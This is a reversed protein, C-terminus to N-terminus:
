SESKLFSAKIKATSDIINELQDKTMKDEPISAMTNQLTMLEQFANRFAPSDTYQLDKILAFNDVLSIWADQQLLVSSKVLSYDEFIEQAIQYTAETWSGLTVFSYIEYQKKDFLTQEVSYQMNYFTSELLAWDSQDIMPKVNDRLKVAVDVLALKPGLDIMQTLIKILQRSDRNILAFQLDSTLIGWTFACHLTDQSVPSIEEITFQTQETAELKNLAMIIAKISTVPAYETVKDNTDPLKSKENNKCSVATLAVILIM